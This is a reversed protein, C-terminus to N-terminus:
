AEWIKQKAVINVPLRNISLAPNSMLPYEPYTHYLRDITIVVDIGVLSFQNKIEYTLYNINTAIIDNAIGPASIEKSGLIRDTWFLKGHGKCKNCPQILEIAQSKIIKKGHCVDCIEKLDNERESDVTNM